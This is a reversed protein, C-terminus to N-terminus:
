LISQHEQRQIWSGLCDPYLEILMGSGEQEEICLSMEVKEVLSLRPIGAVELPWFDLELEISPLTILMHPLDLCYIKMISSLSAIIAIEYIIGMM